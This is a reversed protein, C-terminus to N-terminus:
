KATDADLKATDFAVLVKCDKLGGFLFVFFLCVSGGATPEGGATLVCVFALGGDARRRCSLFLFIISVKRSMLCRMQQCRKPSIEEKARSMKSPVMMM